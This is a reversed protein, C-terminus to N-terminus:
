ARRGRRARLEGRQSADVGDGTSTISRRLSSSPRRLLGRRGTLLRPWPRCAPARLRALQGLDVALALGGDAGEVADRELDRAALHDRDHAGRARPLARQQVQEARELRRGRPSIASAPRRKSPSSSRSSVRSRRSVIPKTKWNKLRSGASVASSFTSSGASIAPRRSSAVRARARSSSSRTPRPRAPRGGARRARRRRAAAPRSRGRAASSGSSTSASSGVPLRSERELASIRPKERSSFSLSPWVITITVWSGAAAAVAPRTTKRRSPRSAPSTSPPEVRARRRASRRSSSAGSRASASRREGPGGGPGRAAAAPAASRPRSRGRRRRHDEADQQQRRRDVAGEAVEEVGDVSAGVEDDGADTPSATAGRRRQALDPPGRADLLRSPM